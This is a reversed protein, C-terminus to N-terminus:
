KCLYFYSSKTGSCQSSNPWLQPCNSNVPRHFFAIYLSLLPSVFFFFFFIYRKSYIDVKGDFANPLSHDSSDPFLLRSVFEAREQFPIGADDIAAALDTMIDTQLETFAQKCENRVNSEMQEMQLQIRKYNREHENGRRRWLWILLFAALTVLGVILVLLFLFKLLNMRIYLVGSGFLGGGYGTLELPGIELRISSGIRVVVLPYGDKMPNGMDDTAKPLTEPLHCLLRNADLIFVRCLETGVTVMYEELEAAQSLYVGELMLPQDVAQQRVGTFVSIQPDPVTTLQIRSGLNRVSEVGDMEFGV